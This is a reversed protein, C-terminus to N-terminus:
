AENIQYINGAWSFILLEDNIGRGFGVIMTGVNVVDESIWQGDVNKILWINGSCFDGYMYGDRLSQPGWDM